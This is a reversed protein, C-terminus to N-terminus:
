VRIGGLIIPTPTLFAIGPSTNGTPTLGLEASFRVPDEEAAVLVAGTFRLTRTSPIHEVLFDVVAAVGPISELEERVRAGIVPLDPPKEQTWALFPLGNRQDFLDEGEFMHLRIWARQAIIALGSTWQGHQPLDGSSTLLIDYM